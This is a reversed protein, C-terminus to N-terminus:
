DCINFYKERLYRPVLQNVLHTLHRSIERPGCYIMLALSVLDFRTEADRAKLRFYFSSM